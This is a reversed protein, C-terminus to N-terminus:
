INSKAVVSYAENLAFPVCPDKVSATELHTFDDLVKVDEGSYQDKGLSFRTNFGGVSSGKREGSQIEGWVKDDLKNHNFIKSLHLTGLTKTEPHELLKYALTQGIIRNTHDESIPGNRELLMEQQEIIREQPILEGAQDKMDVSAWTAFVREEGNEVASKIEEISDTEEFIQILEETPITGTGKNTFIINM